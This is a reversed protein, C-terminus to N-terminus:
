QQTNIDTRVPSSEQEIAVDRVPSANKNPFTEEPVLDSSELDNKRISAKDPRQVPEPSRLDIVKIKSDTTTVHKCEEYVNDRGPPDHEHSTRKPCAQIMPVHEGKVRFAKNGPKPTDIACVIGIYDPNGGQRYVQNHADTSSFMLEHKPHTHIWGYDALGDDIM